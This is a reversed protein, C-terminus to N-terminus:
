VERAAERHSSVMCAIKDRNRHRDAGRSFAINQTVDPEIKTNGMCHPADGQRHTQKWSDPGGGQMKSASPRIESVM